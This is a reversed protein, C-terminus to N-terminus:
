MYSVRSYSKVATSKLQTMMVEQAASAAGSVGEATGDHPSKRLEALDAQSVSCSVPHVIALLMITQM